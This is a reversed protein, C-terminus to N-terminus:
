PNGGSATEIQLEIQERDPATPRLELYRKLHRVAEREQGLKELSAALSRVAEAKQPAIKLANEFAEAAEEFM